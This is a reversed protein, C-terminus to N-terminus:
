QVYNCISKYHSQPQVLQLLNSVNSTSSMSEITFIQINNRDQIIVQSLYDLLPNGKRRM